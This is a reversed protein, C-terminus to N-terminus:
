FEYGYRLGFGELGENTSCLKANSIHDFHLMVKHHEALRVGVDFDERFLLKCGLEKKNENSTRTEGNHVSGGWGFDFFYRKWFDWEWTIGFYAQSTNGASNVTVGLHPRPSWVMKMFDPSLFLVAANADVGSEKNRSFPGEDHVNAGLRLESIYRWGKKAPQVEATPDFVPLPEFKPLPELPSAAPTAPSEVFSPKAPPAVFPADPAAFPHPQRFADNFDYLGSAAEAESGGAAVAGLFAGLAVAGFLGQFFYKLFKKGRGFVAIEM